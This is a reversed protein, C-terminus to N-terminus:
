GEKGADKVFRDLADKCGDLSGVSRHRVIGERDIVIYAPIGSVGLRKAVSADTDLLVTYKIGKEEAFARAQELPERVDIGLVKM